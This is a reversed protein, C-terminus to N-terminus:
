LEYGEIEIGTAGEDGNYMAREQACKITKIRRKVAAKKLSLGHRQQYQYAQLFELQDATMTVVVSQQGDPNNIPTLTM